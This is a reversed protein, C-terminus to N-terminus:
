SPSARPRTRARPKLTRLQVVLPGPVDAEIAVGATGYRESIVRGERHIRALLRGEGYRLRLRLRVWPEPLRRALAATLAPLGDGRAASVVVADPHEAQLRHVDEPSLRDAKNFVMLAPHEGAGISELVDRVVRVQVPWDPDSADVVHILMEAHVVEELTGRFAAILQTPLRQIFGVTDTLVVTRRNPLTLRRVTPDLTAFLRDEVFARAGTLANLLTSKGANTYGVLAVQAIAADKRPGRQQGRHRQIANIERQLDTIRARVRRRDVELKTEGPGRTGIGGGLRSLWVGRGTLRPLLYNMQALEVQLRGEHSRARRAFIDLVLATRDLVKVGLEDELTRQQIPTLEEDLLVVDAAHTETARRVEELKGRGLFSAPAPAGRRQVVTAVPQAGATVALRALEQLSRGSDGGRDLGVLVAREAEGARTRRTPGARRAADAQRTRPALELTALAGLSYPGEVEEGAGNGNRARAAPTLVWLETPLGRRTGATLVLDLGLQELARANGDDPRGDADPHAEIYRLGGARGGVRQRREEILPQWRRSLVVHTVAGHRDLFVGVERRLAQALHCLIEVM